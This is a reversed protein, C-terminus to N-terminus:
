RKLRTKRKGGEGIGAVDRVDASTGATMSCHAEGFRRNEREWRIPSPRPSPQGADLEM